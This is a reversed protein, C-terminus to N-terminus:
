QQGGQNGSATSRQDWRKGDAFVISEVELDFAGAADKRYRLVFKRVDDLERGAAALAATRRAIFVAWERVPIMAAFLYIESRVLMARRLRRLPEPLGAYDYAFLDRYHRFAEWRAHQGQVEEVRLSHADLRYWSARARDMALAARPVLVLEEGFFRAIAIQDEPNALFVTQFGRRLPGELEEAAADQLSADQMLVAASVQGEARATAKPAVPVLGNADGGPAGREPPLVDVKPPEPPEEQQVQPVPEPASEQEVKPEPEAEAKPEPQRQEPPLAPAEPPPELQAVVGVPEPLARPEVAIPPPASPAVHPMLFPPLSGGFVLWWSFAAAVVLLALERLLRM